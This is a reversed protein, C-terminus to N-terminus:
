CSNTTKSQAIQNNSRISSNGGIVDCDEYELLKQIDVASFAIDSDVWFIYEVDTYYYWKNWLKNRGTAIDSVGSQLTLEIDYDKGLIKQLNFVAQTYSIDVLGERTPTVVAIRKKAM